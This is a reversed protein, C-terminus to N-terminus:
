HFLNKLQTISKKVPQVSPDFKSTRIVTNVRLIKADEGIENQLFLHVAYDATEEDLDPLVGTEIELNYTGEEDLTAIFHWGSTNISVEEMYENHLRFNANWKKAPKSAYYIWNLHEPAEAIIRKSIAYLEKDNNPSITLFWNNDDDLGLDWSFLGLDLIFNNMKEVIENREPLSESQISNKIFTDNQAFWQWFSEVKEDQTYMNM